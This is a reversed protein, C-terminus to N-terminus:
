FKENEINNLIKLGNTAFILLENETAKNKMRNARLSIVQINGKVLGKSSDIRDGTYYHPKNFDKPDTSLPIELLPCKEPIVIDEIKLNFNFGYDLHSKYLRYLLRGEPTSHEIYKIVYHNKTKGLWNENIDDIIMRHTDNYESGLPPLIECMRLRHFVNKPLSTATYGPLDSLKQRAQKSGLNTLQFHESVVSKSIYQEEKLKKQKEIKFNEFYSFDNKGIDDIIKQQEDTLPEGYPPLVNNDRLYTRVRSRKERLYIKDPTLKEQPVWGMDVKIKEWYDFNLNSVDDYISKQESTYEDKNLPLIGLEVLRRLIFRKKEKLKKEKSVSIM